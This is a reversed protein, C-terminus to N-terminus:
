RGGLATAGASEESSWVDADEVLESRRSAPRQQGERAAGKGTAGWISGPENVLGRGRAGRGAGGMGAGGGGVGGMPPVFGGPHTTGAASSALSAYNQASRARMAMNEAARERLQGGVPSMGALSPPLYGGYLGAIGGGGGGLGGGGMGGGGLAPVLGGAGGGRLAELGGAAGGAISPVFGGGGEIGALRSAYGASDGFPEGTIPDVFQGGSTIERGTAPDVLNGTTPDQVWGEYAGSEPGLQPAVGGAADAGGAGAGGTEGETGAASAGSGGAGAVSGGGGASSAAMARQGEAGAGGSTGNVPATGAPQPTVGAYADSIAQVYPQLRAAEKAYAADMTAAPDTATPGYAANHNVDNRLTELMAMSNALEQRAITAAVAAADVMAATEQAHASTQSVWAGVPRLRNAYAAYPAGTQAGVTDASGTLETGGTTADTGYQTLWTAVQKLHTDNVSQILRAIEMFAAAGGGPSTM